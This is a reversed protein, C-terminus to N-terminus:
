RARRCFLHFSQAIFSRMRIPMVSAASCVSIPSPDSSLTHNELKLRDRFDDLSAELVELGGREFDALADQGRVLHLSARKQKSKENILLKGNAFELAALWGKVPVKAGAEYWRLRGHIMLHLILFYDEDFGFVIRKASREISHLTRGQLAKIPPDATRLLFLHGIRVRELTQGQIFHRL